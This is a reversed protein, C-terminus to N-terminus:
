PEFGETEALVLGTHNTVRTKKKTKETCSLSVRAAVCLRQSTKGKNIGKQFTIVKTLL